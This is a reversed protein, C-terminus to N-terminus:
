LGVKFAWTISTFLFIIGFIDSTHSSFEFSCDQSRLYGAFQVDYRTIDAVLTTTLCYSLHEELDLVLMKELKVVWVYKTRHLLRWKVM